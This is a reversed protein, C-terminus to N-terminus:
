QEIVISRALVYRGEDTGRVAVQQGNALAGFRVRSNTQQSWVVTDADARVARAGGRWAVTFTRAELSLDRVVGTVGIAQAGSVQSAPVGGSSPSVPSAAGSCGALAVSAVVLPLCLSILARPRM